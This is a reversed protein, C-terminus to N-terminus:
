VKVEQTFSEEIFASKFAAKLQDKMEQRHAEMAPRLYPSAEVGPHEVYNWFSPDGAIMGLESEVWANVFEYYNLYEGSEADIMGVLKASSPPFQFVFPFALYDAQRPAIIYEKSSINRLSHIGSGYEYARAAMRGKRASGIWTPDGLDVKIEIYKKDGEEKAVGV